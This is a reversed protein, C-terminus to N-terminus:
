GHIKRWEVTSDAKLKIVLTRVQLPLFGMKTESIKYYLYGENSRDPPGLLRMLSDKFIGHLQRHQLLDQLMAAREPYSAGQQRRWQQADFTKEETEKKCSFLFVAILLLGPLLSRKMCPTKFSLNLPLPRCPKMSPGILMKKFAALPIIGKM